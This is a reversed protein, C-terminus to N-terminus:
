LHTVQAIWESVCSNSNVLRPFEQVKGRQLHTKLMVDQACGGLAEKAFFSFVCIVCPRWGLLLPRWCVCPRWGAFAKPVPVLVESSARTRGDTRGGCRLDRHEAVRGGVALPSPAHPVGVGPADSGPPALGLAFGLAFRTRLIPDEM